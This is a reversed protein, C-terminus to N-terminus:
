GIQRFPFFIYHFQVDECLHLSHGDLHCAGGLRFDLFVFSFQSREAFSVLLMQNSFIEVFKQFLSLLHLSNIFPSCATWKLCFESMRVSSGWLSKLM